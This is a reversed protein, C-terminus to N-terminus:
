MDITFDDLVMEAANMYREIFRNSFQMEVVKAKRKLQFKLFEILVRCFM